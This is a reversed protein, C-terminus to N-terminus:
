RSHSWDEAETGYALTSAVYRWGLSSDLSMLNRLPICASGDRKM